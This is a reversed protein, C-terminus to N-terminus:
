RIIRLGAKNDEVWVVKAEASPRILNVTNGTALQANTSVKLGSESMDVIECSWTNGKPDAFETAVACILRSRHRKECYFDEQQRKFFSGWIGMLLHYCIKRWFYVILKSHISKTIVIVFTAPIADFIKDSIKEAINNTL